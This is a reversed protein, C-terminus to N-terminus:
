TISTSRKYVSINLVKNVTITFCKNCLVAYFLIIKHVQAKVFHYVASNSILTTSYLEVSTFQNCKGTLERNKCNRGPLFLKEGIEGMPM